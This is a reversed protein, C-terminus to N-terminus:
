KVCVGLGALCLWGCAVVCGNVMVAVLVAEVCAVAVVMVGVVLVTMVGNDYAVTRAM